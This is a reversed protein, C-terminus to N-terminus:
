VMTVLASLAGLPLSGSWLQVAFAVFVAVLTLWHTTNMEADGSQVEVGIIPKDEVIVRGCM